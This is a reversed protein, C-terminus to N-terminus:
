MYMDSWKERNSRDSRFPGYRTGCSREIQGNEIGNGRQETIEMYLSFIVNCSKHITLLSDIPIVSGHMWTYNCCTYTLTNQSNGARLSFVVENPELSNPINERGEFTTNSSMRCIMSPLRPVTQDFYGTISTLDSTM